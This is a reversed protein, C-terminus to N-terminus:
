QNIIGAHAVIAVHCMSTTKMQLTTHMRKLCSGRKRREWSLIRWELFTQELSKGMDYRSYANLDLTKPEFKSCINASPTLLSSDEGGPSVNECDEVPGTAPRQCPISAEQTQRSRSTPSVQM